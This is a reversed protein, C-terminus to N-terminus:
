QPKAEAPVLFYLIRGNHTKAARRSVQACNANAHRSASGFPSIVARFIGPIHAEDRSLAFSAM